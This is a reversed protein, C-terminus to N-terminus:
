PRPLVRCADLLVLLVLLLQQHTQAQPSLSCGKKKIKQDLNKCAVTTHPCRRGPM